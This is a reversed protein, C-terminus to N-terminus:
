VWYAIRGRFRRFLIFTALFGFIALLFTFPYSLPDPNHGLLPARILELFHYFPNIEILWGHGQLLNPTWIIPTVFFAVQVLSSIIPTIDRFRACILALLMVVWICNIILLAFGPILLWLHMGPWIGFYLAVLIYIIFNHAYVILNRTITRMIYTTYPLQIQKIYAHSSVFTVCSEQMITAMFTWQMLGLTLFPFYDNTETKLLHGYVFGMTLIMFGMSLTLWFPGLISGRYRLKIDQWAMLLWMPWRRLAETFDRVAAATSAGGSAKYYPKLILESQTTM